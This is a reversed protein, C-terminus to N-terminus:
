PKPEPPKARSCTPKHGTKKRCEECPFTAIVAVVKNLANRYDGAEMACASAERPDDKAAQRMAEIGMYLARGTTRVDAETMGKIAYVRHQRREATM